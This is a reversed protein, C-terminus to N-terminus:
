KMEILMDSYSNSILDQQKIKLLEMYFECKSQLDSKNSEDSGIVEIEIFQGLNKVIDIHFKVNEIFYIERKKEVITKIGSTKSLISKLTESDHSKYLIVKSEKSMSKDERDYFILSNEINGERLKLRGQKSHFYVDTQQDIGKFDANHSKLTKRVADLDNCKAKIEINIHAM